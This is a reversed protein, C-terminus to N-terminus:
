GGPRHMLTFKNCSTVEAAAIRENLDRKALGLKEGRNKYVLKVTAGDEESRKFDYRSVYDGFIRKTLQDRKSYPAGPSVKQNFKHILSFVYRHNESLLRQLERGSSARPTQQDAVGCGIFTQYIQSDLDDRDTMLVFTFNGPVTRRVEQTAV